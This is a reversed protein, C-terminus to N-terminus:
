RRSDTMARRVSPGADVEALLALFLRSVRDHPPQDTRRRLTEVLEDDRRLMGLDAPARPTTTDLRMQRAGSDAATM